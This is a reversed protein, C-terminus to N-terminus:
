VTGQVFSHLPISLAFSYLVINVFHGPFPRDAIQSEHIGEGLKVGRGEKKDGAEDLRDNTM